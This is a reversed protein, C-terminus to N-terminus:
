APAHSLGYMSDMVCPSSIVSGAILVQPVVSLLLPKKRLRSPLSKEMKRWAADFPERMTVTVVEFLEAPGVNSVKRAALVCHVGTCDRSVTTRSLSVDLKFSCSAHLYCKQYASALAAVRKCGTWQEGEYCTTSLPLMTLNPEPITSTTWLIELWAQCCCPYSTMADNCLKWFM